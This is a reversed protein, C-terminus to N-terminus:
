EVQAFSFPADISTLHDFRGECSSELQNAGCCTLISKRPPKGGRSQNSVDKCGM